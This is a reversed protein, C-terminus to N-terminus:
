PKKRNKSINYFPTFGTEAAQAWFVALKRPDSATFTHLGPKLFVPGACPLGDMLGQVAGEPSAVVYSAPIAIEFPRAPNEKQAPPHLFCGAVFIRPGVPVYNQEVWRLTKDPLRDLLAVCTRTNIMDEVITDKISGTAIRKETINELAFYFPRQRFVIEGKSDMIFDSPKTLRLVDELLSENKVARVARPSKKRETLAIQAVAILLILMTGRKGMRLLWPALSLAFLPAIPPYDQPTVLPWVTLLLLLFIAGTLFVFARRTAQPHESDMGLIVRGIRAFLLPILLLAVVHLFKLKLGGGPIANHQFVCYLLNPLAKQANFYFGIAFPVICLGLLVFLANGGCQVLLNRRNPKPTLWFVMALAGIASIVLLSTKMSVGFTTGLLLGTVFARSRTFRGTLGFALTLFWLTYWLVDARFESSKILFFQSTGTLVVAWIGARKSYLQAGLWYICGLSLAVLPLMAMRMKFLIGAQEGLWSLLPAMALHFLPAHNDFYDRYQVMGQTWGWVVHLHQPEDSNISLAHLYCAKFAAIVLLLALLAGKEWRGMFLAEVAQSDPAPCTKKSTPM